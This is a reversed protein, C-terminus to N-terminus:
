YHKLKLDISIIDRTDIVVNSINDM